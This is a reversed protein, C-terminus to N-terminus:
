MSTLRHRYPPHPLLTSATGKLRIRSMGSVDEALYSSHEAQGEARGHDAASHSEGPRWVLCVCDESRLDLTQTTAASGVRSRKVLRWSARAAEWEKM